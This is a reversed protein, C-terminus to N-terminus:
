KNSEAQKLLDVFDRALLKTFVRAGDDDLHTADYRHEVDYLEPFRDPDDYRLLQPVDGREHARILDDQRYLAPQIVFIVRAGLAQSREVIRRYLALAEPAPPRNSTTQKRFEEVQALYEDAKKKRFRQGRKGLESGEEGQPAYGDRDPGLMEAVTEPSPRLGLSEDVWRLGRGVNSLNYACSSWHSYLLSAKDQASRDSEFVYESVLRTIAFEHWDIVSRARFNRDDPVVSFGEPDVLVFDIHRPALALVRGLTHQADVANAGPLGFNFSHTEVGATHTLQDFLKPVFGRFTRSSGIFLLNFEDRHEAFYDFKPERKDLGSGGPLVRRLVACAIAFTAVFMVAYLAAGGRRL